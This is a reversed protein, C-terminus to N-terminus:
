PDNYVLSEEEEENHPQKMENDRYAKIDNM